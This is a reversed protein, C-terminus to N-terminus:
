FVTYKAMICILRICIARRQIQGKIRALEQEIAENKEDDLLNEIGTEIPCTEIKLSATQM